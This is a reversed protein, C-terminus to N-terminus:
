RTLEAFIAELVGRSNSMVDSNWFRIVRYGRGALWTTRAADYAETEPEAHQGGDLEVILKRELCIFDVVYPGIPHQRRFRSGAVNKLRLQQWLKREAPTAASRLKQALRSRSGTHRADGTVEAAQRTDVETSMVRVSSGRGGQPPPNPHPTQSAGDTM